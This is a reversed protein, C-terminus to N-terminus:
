RRAFFAAPIGEELLADRAARRLVHLGSPDLKRRAAVGILDARRLHRDHPPRRLHPRDRKVRPRDAALIDVM